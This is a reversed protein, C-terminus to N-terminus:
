KSSLLIRMESPMLRNWVTLHGQQNNSNNLTKLLIIFLIYVFPIFASFNM